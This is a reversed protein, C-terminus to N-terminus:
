ERQEKMIYESRLLLGTNRDFILYCCSSDNRMANEVEPYRDKTITFKIEDASFHEHEIILPPNHPAAEESELSRTRPSRDEGAIIKGKNDVIIIKEVKKQVQNEVGISSSRQNLNTTM